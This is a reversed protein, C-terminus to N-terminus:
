VETKEHAFHLYCLQSSWILFHIYHTQCLSQYCIDYLRQWLTQVPHSLLLHMKDPLPPSTSLRSFASESIDLSKPISLLLRAVPVQLCVGAASSLAGLLPQVCPAPVVQLSPLFGLCGHPPPAFGSVLLARSSFGSLGAM